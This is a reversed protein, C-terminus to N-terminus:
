GSLVSSGYPRGRWVMGRRGSPAMRLHIDDNRPRSLLEDSVMAGRHEHVRKRMTAAGPRQGQEVGGRSRGSIRGLELREVGSVGAHSEM